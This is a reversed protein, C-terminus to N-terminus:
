LNSFHQWEQQKFNSLIFREVYSLAIINLTNMELFFLTKPKIVYYSIIGLFFSYRIGTLGYELSSTIFSRIKQAEEVNKPNDPEFYV